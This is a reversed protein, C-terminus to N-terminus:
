HAPISAPERYKLCYIAGVTDGAVITTGDSALSVCTFPVDLVVNAIRTRTALDWVKITRDYSASVARRGDPTVAVATVASLHGYLACLQAKGAIDWVRLVNDRAATVAWRGDPTVALADVMGARRSITNPETRRTLDWAILRGDDAASVASLGDPTVAVARVSDTQGLITRLETGNRLNCTRYTLDGWVSHAYQGDPTVVLAAVSGSSGELTYLEAGRELDWVKLSGSRAASVARRGDPTTAVAIVSDTHGQITQMAAGNQLDWVRLTGDSAASIVKRGYSAVAVTNTPGTHSLLPQLNQTQGTLDWVKLTHDDSASIARRGDPTVTLARVAFAHGRLIYPEDEIALDWVMLTGDDAASVTKRGDPTIAVATTRGTQGGLTYLETGTALDWVKLINNGFASILRRGDATVAIATVSGGQDILTHMEMGRALDWVKLTGDNSVSVLRGDTTVEIADIWGLHGKLTHLETGREIDWVRLTRDTSASVVKRGDVTLALATVGSTHGHFTQLERGTSIDWVKLTGDSSASVVQHGDPTVALHRVWDTHGILTCQQKGNILDWVTPTKDWPACVAFHGDQTIAVSSTYGVRDQITQIEAGDSLNWVKICNASVSVARKGDKTLTVFRVEGTHGSLTRELSVTEGMTSWQLTISPTERSTLGTRAAKAQEEDGALVARKCWQQLFHARTETSNWKHLTHSEQQVMRLLKQLAIGVPPVAPENSLLDLATVLDREIAAIGRSACHGEVEIVDKYAELLHEACQLRFAATEPAPTKEAAFERVLPHLRVEAGQLAEVLSARELRRLARVLRSPSGPANYQVSRALGALLELRAGPIQAAEPLQGATRLLLRADDDVQRGSGLADWQEGLTAAIAAAHIGRLVAPSLEEGEADLTRLRGERHLRHRFDALTVEPWEALFAAAIELALPLGGLIRYIVRADEHEPHYDALAPQRMPARLLLALGPSEPLVTVEVAALDGLDRRRTTLLLACPLSAPVLDPTVAQRIRAPDDVNDLVLLSRPHGKFYAAAAAIRRTQAEAETAPALFVGLEAFEQQWDAAANIWFVGEPYTEAYRYCYEVALQTKGIGGMGTLGAPRIGVAGRATLTEHLDQLDEVRGVFYTSRLFPVRFIPQGAKTENPEVDIMELEAALDVLTQRLPRKAALTRLFVVLQGRRQFDAIIEHIQEMYPVRQSVSHDLDLNFHVALVLRLEGYSFTALIEAHIRQLLSGTLPM